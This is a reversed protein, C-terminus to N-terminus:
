QGSRFWRKKAITNEFFKSCDDDDYIERIAQKLTRSFEAASRQLWFACYHPREDVQRAPDEDIRQWKQIECLLEFHTM